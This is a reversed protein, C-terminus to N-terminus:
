GLAYVGAAGVHFESRYPREVGGVFMPPIRLPPCRNIAAHDAHLVVTSRLLQDAVRDPKAEISAPIVAIGIEAKRFNSRSGQPVRDRVKVDTNVEDPPM